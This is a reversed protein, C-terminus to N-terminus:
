NCLMKESNELSLLLFCLFEKHNAIVALEVLSHLHHNTLAVQSACLYLERGTVAGTGWRSHPPPPPARPPRAHPGHMFLISRDSDINIM